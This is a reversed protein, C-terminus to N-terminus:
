LKGKQLAQKNHKCVLFLNHTCSESLPTISDMVGKQHFPALVDDARMVNHIKKTHFLTSALPKQFFCSIQDVFLKVKNLCCNQINNVKVM